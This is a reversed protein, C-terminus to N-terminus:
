VTMSTWTLMGQLPRPLHTADLDARHRPHGHLDRKAGPQELPHGPRACGRPRSAPLTRRCNMGAVHAHHRASLLRQEAYADEMARLIWGEGGFLVARPGNGPAGCLCQLLGLSPARRLIWRERTNAALGRPFPHYGAM